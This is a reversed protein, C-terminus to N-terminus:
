GEAAIIEAKLREITQLLSTRENNITKEAASIAIEKKAQFGRIKNDYNSLYEKARLVKNNEAKITEIKRYTEGLDYKEWEEARYGDPLDKAIDSIIAQRNRVDRNVDQRSQFYEGSEAQIDSLM